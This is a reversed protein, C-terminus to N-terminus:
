WYDGRDLMDDVRKAVGKHIEKRLQAETTFKKVAKKIKKNTDSKFEEDMIENLQKDVYAKLRKNIEAALSADVGIEKEWREWNEVFNSAAQLRRARSEPTSKEVVGM